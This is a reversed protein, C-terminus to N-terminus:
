ERGKKGAIRFPELGKDIKGIVRNCRIINWLPYLGVALCIMGYLLTRSGGRNMLIYASLFSFALLWYWIRRQRRYGDRVGLLDEIKEQKEPGKAQYVPGSIIREKTEQTGRAERREV